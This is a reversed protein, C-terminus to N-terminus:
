RIEESAFVRRFERPARRRRRCRTAADLYSIGIARRPATTANRGSRHWVHNHILIAEGARATIKVVKAAANSEAFREAQVTGGEPSALGDLHTAPVFELCGSDENADDLATWIQLCPRRDIGWFRGDDQHWPLETGANAAKNWLVARYLSVADGIVTHAIRAFLPNEIWAWITSDLDLGELKRYSRSPGVWGRPGSDSHDELEAAAASAGAANSTPQIGQTNARRTGQQRPADVGEHVSLNNQDPGKGYSLEDYRGTPSDHQFFMAPYRVVGMMLDDCRQRLAEIGGTDLVTGLRAYGHQAYNALATKIELSQPEVALM